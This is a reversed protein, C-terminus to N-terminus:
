LLSELMRRRTGETERYIKQRYLTHQFAALLEAGDDDLTVGDAEITVKVGPYLYSFRVIAEELYPAFVPQVKINM